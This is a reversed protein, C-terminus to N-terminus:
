IHTLFVANWYVFSFIGSQYFAMKYGESVTTLM